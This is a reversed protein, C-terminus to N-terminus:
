LLYYYLKFFFNTESFKLLLNAIVQLKSQKKIKYDILKLWYNPIKIKCKFIKKINFHALM